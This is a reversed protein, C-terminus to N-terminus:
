NHVAFEVGVHASEEGHGPEVALDRSSLSGRENGHAADLGM